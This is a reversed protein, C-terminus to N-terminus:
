IDLRAALDAAAAAALDPGGTMAAMDAWIMSATWAAEFEADPVAGDLYGSRLALRDAPDPWARLDVAPHSLFSDGFDIVGTMSGADDCFVHTPGPNSHLAVPTFRSPLMDLARSAAQEPSMPLPWSGPREAILDLVDALRLELRSRLATGDHDVPFLDSEATLPAVHVAHLRALLRGTQRLLETREAGAVQVQRTARGPMRSIVLYEVEGEPAAVRGYGLMEPVQGALPGALHQLLRAEKALSTRPRLRHPRQTKVVVDGDLLYARAEGGSEDVVALASARDTHAAAIGLVTDPSLVPDKADPQLYTDGRGM